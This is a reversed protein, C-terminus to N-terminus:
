DLAHLFTNRRLKRKKWEFPVVGEMLSLNFVRALQISIQGVRERLLKQPIGDMGPSKNEKMAKIKKAVM